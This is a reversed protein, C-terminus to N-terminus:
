RKADREHETHIKKQDRLGTYEAGLSLVFAKKLDSIEHIHSAIKRSVFFLTAKPGLVDRPSHLSLYGWLFFLAIFHFERNIDM